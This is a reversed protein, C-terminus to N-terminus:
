RPFPLALSPPMPMSLELHSFHLLPLVQYLEVVDTMSPPMTPLADLISTHVKRMAEACQYCHMASFILLFFSLYIQLADGKLARRRIVRYRGAHRMKAGDAGAVAPARGVREHEGSLADDGSRMM